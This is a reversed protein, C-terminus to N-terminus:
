KKAVKPKKKDDLIYQIVTLWVGDNNCLWKPYGVVELDYKECLANYEKIFEDKKGSENLVKKDTM